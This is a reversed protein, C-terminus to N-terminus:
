EEDELLGLAEFSEKDLLNKIFDLTEDIAKGEEDQQKGSVDFM